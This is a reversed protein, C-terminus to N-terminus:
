QADLHEIIADFGALTYADVEANDPLPLSSQKVIVVQSKPDIYLWQGYIGIATYAGHDNNRMWFLNKYSWNAMGSQSEEGRAFTQLDGGTSINEVTASPLIRKGNFMGKYMLMVGVKAMDIATANLGGGCVATGQADVVTYADRNMGLKSWIQAAFLQEFPQGSAKETLWCALDANPTVYHFKEGHRGKRQLKMIFDHINKPESARQSGHNFVRQYAVIESHPDLYDESYKVGATMDLVQGVTADAYASHKLEPIYDVVKKDRSLLGETSLNAALLGVMSKTVSMMLHRIRSTQGDFYGEYAIEGNKLVIFADTRTQHLMDAVTKKENQHTVSNHFPFSIADPDLQVPTQKFLFLPNNSADITKVPLFEEIHKFAYRNKDGLLINDKNVGLEVRTKGASSVTDDLGIVSTQSVAHTSYFLFVSVGLFLTKPKM